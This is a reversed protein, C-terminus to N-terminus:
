TPKRDAGIRDFREESHGFTMAHALGLIRSADGKAQRGQTPCRRSFFGLLHQCDTHCSLVLDRPLQGRQGLLPALNQALALVEFTQALTLACRM